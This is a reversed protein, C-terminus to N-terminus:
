AKFIFKSNIPWKNDSTGYTRKVRPFITPLRGSWCLLQIKGPVDSCSTPFCTKNRTKQLIEGTCPNEITNCILKGGNPILYVPVGPNVIIPPLIPYNPNVDPQPPPPTPTQPSGGSNVISPLNIPQNINSKICDLLEYSTINNNDIINSSQPAVIYSQNIRKLLQINPFSAQQTQSAWSIYNRKALFGYKQQKTLQASNNKYQLVNAKRYMQSEATNTICNPQYRNWERPPIPRYTSGLCSM